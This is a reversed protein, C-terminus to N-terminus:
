PNNERRLAAVTPLFHELPPTALGPLKAEDDWRRVAVAAEAHAEQAFAEAEGSTFPGGQLRLSLQSAPSLREAYDPETACLYRKAAVHLRVPESM